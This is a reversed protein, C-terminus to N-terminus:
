AVRSSDLLFFPASRGSGHSIDAKPHNMDLLSGIIISSGYLNASIDLITRHM